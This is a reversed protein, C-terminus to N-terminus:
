LGENIRIVKQGLELEWAEAMYDGDIKVHRAGASDVQLTLTM